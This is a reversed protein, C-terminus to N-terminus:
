PSRPPGTLPGGAQQRRSLEYYEEMEDARGQFGRAVVDARCGSAADATLLPSSALSQDLATSTAILPHGRVHTHSGLRSGVKDNHLSVLVKLLDLVQVVCALACAM